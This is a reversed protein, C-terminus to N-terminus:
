PEFRAYVTTKNFWTPVGSGTQCLEGLSLAGVVDNRNETLIEIEERLRERLFIARSVCEFVLAKGKGESVSMASSLLDGESGHMLFMVSNEEVSGACWIRGKEDVRIPDRVVEERHEGVLGFPFAKAVEFFNDGSVEIGFNDKLIERYVEFANRWNIEEIWNGETRTAVMPGFVRKWGHEVRVSVKAKVPVILAKGGTMGRPTLIPEIAKSVDGAGAGIYSVSTGFRDYLTHLLSSVDKYQWDILVLLTSGHLSLPGIDQPSSVLFPKGSLPLKLLLVGESLVMGSAILGPFVAGYLGIGRENCLRTLEKTKKEGEQAPIFALVLEDEKVGEIWSRVDEGEIDKVYLFEM